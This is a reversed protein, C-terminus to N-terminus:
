GFHFDFLLYRFYTFITLFFLSHLAFILSSFNFNHTDTHENTAVPSSKRCCFIFDQSRITYLLFFFTKKHRSPLKNPNPPKGGEHWCLPGEPHTHVSRRLCVAVERIFRLTTDRACAVYRDCNDDNASAALRLNSRARSQSM